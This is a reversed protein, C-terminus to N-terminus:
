QSFDGEEIMTNFDLASEKIVEFTGYLNVKGFGWQINPYALNSERQCGSILYSRILDSDMATKNGNVIGWEFLLATIGATIAAAVSTGTMTGYGTPYIGKVDVGPAVFDPAIRFLRTPGWSSSVLLSQDKSNYAGCKIARLATSPIVTTYEPTPRLFEVTPSIQGTIPLWAWYEGNIILDGYLIINWIGQTANKFSVIVNNNNDRFYRLTIRTNELVLQNSYELGSQFSVRPVAEGTPSTVGASIKDYGPSHIIVTFSAGQEGVKISIRDAARTAPIKGQTHHKANAENGVATVFAYGVRQSVFSIYEEILTSGDHAGDNTGMGICMVIPMNFKESADLIYKMGLMYDTSEYLNPNDNTVLYRDILYQSAKKLKVILLYAKPAAGIYEGPENSAAVSALFTGHGDEDVSPVISYPDSSRNANNIDDSTYTSGFYLDDQRKGDVTQDWIGLIKTSGDEFKFADKRYDIGTDVIGIIVGRGSLNLFPQNLVRTIGSADNSQSDTPSMIRPLFYLFDGGLDNVLQSVYAQNIYGVIYRNEFETGLRIYPRSRAFIKFRETNLVQFDVTTPLKVFESLPLNLEDDINLAM